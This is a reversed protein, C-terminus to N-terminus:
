RFQMMGSGPRTTSVFWTGVGDPSWLYSEFEANTAFHFLGVKLFERDGYIVQGVEPDAIQVFADSYLVYECRLPMGAWCSGSFIDEPQLYYTLGMKQVPPLYVKYEAQGQVSVGIGLLIMVFVLVAFVKKM